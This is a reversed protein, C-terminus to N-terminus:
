GRLKVMISDLETDHRGTKSSLYDINVKVGKIENSVIEFVNRHEDLKNNTYKFNSRLESSLHDVKTEIREQGEKLVTVDTKLVSVDQKLVSVDGKIDTIDQKLDTIDTKLDKIENLILKLTEEM